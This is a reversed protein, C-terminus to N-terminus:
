PLFFLPLLASCISAPLSRCFQYCFPLSPTVPLCLWASVSVSISGSTSCSLNPLPLPTDSGAENRYLTYSRAGENHLYGQTNGNLAM